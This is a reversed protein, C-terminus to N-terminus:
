NVPAFTFAEHESWFIQLQGDVIKYKQANGLFQLILQEQEMIGKPEPCAMLTTFLESIAIKDGDVQYSGGFTNCGASGSVKGDDFRITIARGEIPRTKRYAYLEWSTGELSYKNDPLASCATLIILLFALYILNNKM